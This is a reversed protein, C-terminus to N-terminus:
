ERKTKAGRAKGIVKKRQTVMYSFLMPFCPIYLCATIICLTPYDFAFNYANPM